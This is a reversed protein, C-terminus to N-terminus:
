KKDDLDGSEMAKIIKNKDFEVTKIFDEDTVPTIIDYELEGPVIDKKTDFVKNNIVLEM